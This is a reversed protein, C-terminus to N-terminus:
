AGLEALGREFEEQKVEEWREDTIWGAWYGGNCLIAEVYVGKRGFSDREWRIIKDFTTEPEAPYQCFLDARVIAKKVSLVQCVQKMKQSYVEWSRVEDTVAELEASYHVSQGKPLGLEIDLWYQTYEIGDTFRVAYVTDFGTEYETFIVRVIEGVKGVNVFPTVYTGVESSSLTRVVRVKTGTDFEQVM